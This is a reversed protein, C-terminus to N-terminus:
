FERRRMAMRYKKKQMRYICFGIVLVSIVAITVWFGVSLGGVNIAIWLMDLMKNTDDSLNVFVETNALIEESPYAIESAVMEEDMYNKAESIPTSYGVYGCNEASVLPECMFNIFMEAAAKNVSGKPICMADVFQNTGEKPSAFALAENDASMTLYDGAYYPAIWANEGVMKDFIQDMVYAQVLPKQEQLLEAAENIEDMDETNISYGLLSLAIAFSDRSNDFMLIKGAYEERWLIEWSDVPETVYKTNYIIGVTGWTYPVSYLADPDYGPNKFQADIYKEYNPINSFDLTELMGNEALRSIMYDSPIIVDYYASGSQLKSFLGENTDFTSYEVNIGTLEEFLKIVDTTGDAGDAIYEGWNYVYLTINKDRFKSYYELDFNSVSLGEDALVPLAAVTVALIVCLFVSLIKKM